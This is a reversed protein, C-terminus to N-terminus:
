SAKYISKKTQSLVNRLMPIFTEIPETDYEPDFSNQDYKACFEVCDKWHESDKYKDRMLIAPAGKDKRSEREVVSVIFNFAEHSDQQEGAIYKQDKRLADLIVIPNVSGSTDSLQGVSDQCEHLDRLVNQLHISFRDEEGEANLGKLYELFDPLGALAQLVCNLYCTNGLNVLGRRLHKVRRKLRFPLLLKWLSSTNIIRSTLEKVFELAFKLM